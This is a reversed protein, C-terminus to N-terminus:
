REARESVMKFTLVNVNVSDNVIVNVNDNDNVNVNDNHMAFFVSAYNAICVYAFAHMQM